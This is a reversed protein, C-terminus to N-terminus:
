LDMTENDARDVLEVREIYGVFDSWSQEAYIRLELAARSEFDTDLLGSINSISGLDFVTIGASGLLESVATSNAAAQIDSMMSMASEDGTVSRSFSQLSVTVQRTGWTRLEVEQGAPRSMDTLAQTSDIGITNVGSIRLEVFPPIGRPGNQDAWRISEDPLDTAVKVWEWLADEIPTWAFPM